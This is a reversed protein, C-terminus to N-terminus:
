ATTELVPTKGTLQVWREVAVDVYAPDIDCGRFRRGTREAAILSTGSGLFMDFVLDGRRTVDQYADAVMAVPKVTPHLALDERRRGHKGLEVMNAHPGPGVRYVFVMEHKSRYLSGMGANSKNWVCINLLDDYLTRGVASVDDLHRWDMCIYHVAGDRSVAAAAGLTECLFARFQDDSMEGSAMAFERHRGKANAHGNIKVNYPPDMFAADIKAGEGVIRKLFEVDRGDGCGIRHDGLIWIDGATTNPEAPVAPIVEDEPDNAAKLVVDIEGSAFGTLALDFDVDLTAIEALELKLIELDWGANLAIKNDALRLAKKQAETLDLLEIVPVTALGLEKAARLRGHGAILVGAEDVLVPNTFGFSRISSCLQEIQRKSHTRANRPDPKIDAIPRYVVSLDRHSPLAGAVSTSM